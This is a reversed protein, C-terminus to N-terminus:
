SNGRASNTASNPPTPHSSSTPPNRAAQKSQAIDLSEPDPSPSWEVPSSPASSPPPPPPTSFYPRPPLTPGDSPSFGPTPAQTLPHFPPLFSPNPSLPASLLLVPPLTPPGYLSNSSFPTSYGYPQQQGKISMASTTNRQFSAPVFANSPGSVATQTPTAVNSTVEAPRGTNSFNYMDLNIPSYPLFGKSAQHQDM